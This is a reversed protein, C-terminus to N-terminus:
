FTFRVETELKGRTDIAEWKGKLQLRDFKFKYGAEYSFDGIDTYGGEIYFNKYKVGPRIYNASAIHQENVYAQTNKWELYLALEEM